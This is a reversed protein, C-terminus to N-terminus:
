PNSNFCNIDPASASPVPYLGELMNVCYKSWDYENVDRQCTTKKCMKSGPSPSLFYSTSDYIKKAKDDWPNASIHCFVGDLSQGSMRNLCSFPNDVDELAPNIKCPTGGEAPITTCSGRGACIDRNYRPCHYQCAKGFYNKAPPPDLEVGLRAYYDRSDETYEDFPQCECQTLESEPNFFTFLDNQKCEGHGGCVDGEFIHCAKSCEPGTVGEPCECKANASCVGAQCNLCPIIRHKSTDDFRMTITKEQGFLNQATIDIDKKMDTYNRILNLCGSNMNIEMDESCWESCANPFDVSDPYFHDDCELCKKSSNFTDMGYENLNCVCLDETEDRFAYPNCIGNRNCTSTDCNITCHPETPNSTWQIKPYLNSECQACYSEPDTGLLCRCKPLEDEFEEDFECLGRGWCGFGEVGSHPYVHEPNDWWSYEATPNCYINCAEIEAGAKPLPLWNPQCDLCRPGQYYGREPPVTPDWNYDLHVSLFDIPNFGYISSSNETPSLDYKFSIAMAEFETLEVIQREIGEVTDKIVNKVQIPIKELDGDRHIHIIQKKFFYDEPLEDDPMIYHAPSAFNYTDPIKDSSINMYMHINIIPGVDSPRQGSFCICEGTFDDCEGNGFCTYIENCDCRRGYWNDEIEPGSSCTCYTGTGLENLFCAGHGSCPVDTTARYPCEHLCDIQGEARYTPQCECFAQPYEQGEYEVMQTIGEYVCTGHGSCPFGEKTIPNIGPCSIECAPEGYWGPKCFCKPSGGVFACTAMEGCLPNGDEDLCAMSCDGAPGNIWGGFCECQGTETCTGHGNCAKCEGRDDLDLQVCNFMNGNPLCVRNCTSETGEYVQADSFAFGTLGYAPFNAPSCGGECVANGFIEAYCRDCLFGTWKRLPGRQCRCAYQTLISSSLTSSKRILRGGNSCNHQECYDGIFLGRSNECNCPPSKFGWSVLGTRVITSPDYIGDHLCPNIVTNLEDIIWQLSIGFFAILGGLLIISLSSFAIVGFASKNNLM